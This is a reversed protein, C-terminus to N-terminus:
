LIKSIRMQSGVFVSKFIKKQIEINKFEKLLQLIKTCPTGRFVLTPSYNLIDEEM